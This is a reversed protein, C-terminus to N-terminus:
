SKKRGFFKAFGGMAAIAGIVILKGFKALALGGLALLGLKKAALGGVLAAIGYEAIHDTGAVFEEYRKGQDYDLSALVTRARDKYQEISQPGTVLDLAFYGERGLAYTHYNVSGGQDPKADYATLLMSYVLRHEKADYDPKEVWRDVKIKPFGRAVRDENGAETGEQANKLLADVDWNKAEEDKVYGSPEFDATIFWPEAPDAPMILGAFNSGGASNGYARMLRNAEDRPVFVFGAPLNLTAQGLMGVAAPGKTGGDMAAIFAANAEKERAEASNAAPAPTATAAPADQAMAPLGFSTGLLLTLAALAALRSPM